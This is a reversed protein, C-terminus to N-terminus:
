LGSPPAKHAQPPHAKQAAAFSKIAHDAFMDRGQMIHFCRLANAPDDRHFPKLKMLGLTLAQEPTLGRALHPRRNFNFDDCVCEGNCSYSDLEVAYEVHPDTRSKVKWRLCADYPTARPPPDLRANVPANGASAM